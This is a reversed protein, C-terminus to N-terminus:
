YFCWHIVINSKGNNYRFADIYEIIEPNEKIPNNLNMSIYANIHINNYKEGMYTLVGLNFLINYSNLISNEIGQIIRSNQLSDSLEFLKGSYHTCIIKYPLYHTNSRCSVWEDKNYIDTTLYYYGSWTPKSAYKNYYLNISIISRKIESLNAKEQVKKTM